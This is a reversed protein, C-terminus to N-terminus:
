FLCVRGVFALALDRWRRVFGALLRGRRVVGAAHTQKIWAASMLGAEAPAFVRRLGWPVAGDCDGGRDAQLPTGACYTREMAPRLERLPRGSLTAPPLRVGPPLGGGPAGARNAPRPCARAWRRPLSCNGPCTAPPPGARRNGDGAPGAGCPGGRHGSCTQKPSASCGPACHVGTEVAPQAANHHRLHRWIM